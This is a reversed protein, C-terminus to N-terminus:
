KHQRWGDSCFLHQQYINMCEEGTLQAVWKIREPMEMLRFERLPCAEPNGGHYPCERALGTLMARTRAVHQEAHGM